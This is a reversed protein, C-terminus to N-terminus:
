GTPTSSTTATPAAPARKFFEVARGALTREFARVSRGDEAVLLLVPTGGLTDNVPSQAVLLDIRDMPGQYIVELFFKVGLDPSYKRASNSQLALTGSAM